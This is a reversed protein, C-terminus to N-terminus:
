SSTLIIMKKTMAFTFAPFHNQASLGGETPNLLTLSADRRGRGEGKEPPLAVIM